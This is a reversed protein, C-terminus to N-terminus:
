AINNWISIICNGRETISMYRRNIKIKCVYKSQKCWQKNATEPTFVFHINSGNDNREILTTLILLYM